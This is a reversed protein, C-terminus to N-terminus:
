SMADLDIVRIRAIVVEGKDLSFVQLRGKTSEKHLWLAATSLLGLRITLIVYQPSPLSRNIPVFLWLQFFLIAVFARPAGLCSTYGVYLKVDM